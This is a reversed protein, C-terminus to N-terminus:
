FFRYRGSRGLDSKCGAPLHASFNELFGASDGWFLPSGAPGTQGAFLILFAAFALALVAEKTVRYHDIMNVSTVQGQNSHIVVQAKDGPFM